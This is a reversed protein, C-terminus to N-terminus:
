TAGGRLAKRLDEVQGVCEASWDLMRSNVIVLWKGGAIPRLQVGEDFWCWGAFFKAGNDICWQDTIPQQRAAREAQEAQEVQEVDSADVRELWGRCIEAVVRGTLNGGGEDPMIRWSQRRAIAANIDRFDDEDVVLTITRDSM